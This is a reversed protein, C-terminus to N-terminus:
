KFPWKIGTQKEFNAISKDLKWRNDWTQKDHLGNNMWSELYRKERNLTNAFAEIQSKSGAIKVPVIEGGFIYKLLLKVAGGFMRLWSEDLREQESAAFNIEYM